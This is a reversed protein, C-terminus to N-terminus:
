KTTSRSKGNVYGRLVRRVIEALSTNRSRAEACLEDFTKRDVGTNVDTMREGFKTPRGPQRKASKTDSVTWVGYDSVAPGQGTRRAAM